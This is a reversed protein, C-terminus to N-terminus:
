SAGAGAGPEPEAPEPNPAPDQPAIDDAPASDELKPKARFVPTFRERTGDFAISEVYYWYARRPDITSDVYSYESPEDVTGAGPIPSATLREFPGEELDGRYVDFGFNEVESATRWKLTNAYQASEEERAGVAGALLAACIWSALLKM